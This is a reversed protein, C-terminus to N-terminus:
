KKQRDKQCEALVKKLVDAMVVAQHKRSYFSVAKENINGQTQAIGNLVSERLFDALVEVEDFAKGQGLNRILESMIGHDDPIVLIPKKVPIYEIVKAYLNEFFPDSLAVLFDASQIQAMSEERPLRDTFVLYPLLERHHNRVREVQGPYHNLGVMRLEIDGSKIAGSRHLLLLADLLFEIHQGSTLTGNHVMLIKSPGHVDPMHAPLDRYGNFVTYAPKRLLFRYFSALVPIPTTIASVNSLFKRERRWEFQRVFKALIGTYNQTIHNLYWGDRYDAVWPIGFKKSLRYGHRFNQWPNGTVLILDVRNKELYASAGSYLFSHRDFVDHYFSGLNWVFTCIRRIGSFKKWGFKRIFWDTPNMRNVVKIMTVGNQVETKEDSAHGFLWYRPDTSMDTWQKTVLVPEIGLGPLHNVWGLPREAAITNLPPYDNCLILVKM